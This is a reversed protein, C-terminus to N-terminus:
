ADIGELSFSISVEYVADNKTIDFRVGEYNRNSKLGSEYQKMAQFDTTVVNLSIRGNSFSLSEVGLASPIGDRIENIYVSNIKQERSIRDIDALLDQINEYTISDQRWSGGSLIAVQDNIDKTLDNNKEDVIFRAVFVGLAVLQVFILMYKGIQFMWEYANAWVDSPRTVPSMFNISKPADNKGFM